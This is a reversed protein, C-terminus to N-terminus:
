IVTFILTRSNQEHYIFLYQLGGLTVLKMRTLLNYRLKYILSIPYIYSLRETIVIDWCKLLELRCVTLIIM